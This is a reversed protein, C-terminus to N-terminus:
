ENGPHAGELEFRMADVTYGNGKLGFWADLLIATSLDTKCHLKHTLLVVNPAVCNRVWRLYLLRFDNKEISNREDHRGGLNISQLIVTLLSGMRIMTM